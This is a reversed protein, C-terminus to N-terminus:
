ASGVCTPIFRFGVEGVPEPRQREGRVHPHVSPCAASAPASSASGVCTPIFRVRHQPVRRAVLAGWARPSSGVAVASVSQRRRREGRVHPHVSSRCSSFSSSSASGVCTPIFRLHAERGAMVHLAGWARPSSGRDRKACVTTAPREGRVHPHVSGCRRPGRQPAASGVCTPIFRLHPGDGRRRGQAGWARPSSGHIRYSFRHAPEREGRVHPHVARACRPWSRRWASGVCTPIFRVLAGVHDHIAVREGRVHPHVPDPRARSAALFASGVCTPIFRSPHFQSAARPLAGWARPSSGSLM